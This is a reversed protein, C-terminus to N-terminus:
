ATNTRIGTIVVEGGATQLDFYVAGGNMNGNNRQYLTTIEDGVAQTSFLASLVAIGALARTRLNSFKM